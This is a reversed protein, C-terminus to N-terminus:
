WFCCKRGYLMVPSFTEKLNGLINFKSTNKKYLYYNNCNEEEFFANILGIMYIIKEFFSQM